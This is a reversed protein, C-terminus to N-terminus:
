CSGRQGRDGPQEGLRDEEEHRQRRRNTLMKKVYLFGAGGALVLGGIRVFQWSLSIILFTGNDSFSLARVVQRHMRRPKCTM